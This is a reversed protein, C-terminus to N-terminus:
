RLGRILGRQPAGAVLAVRVEQRLILRSPCAAEPGQKVAFQKTSGGWGRSLSFRGTRSRSAWSAAARAFGALHLLGLGWKPHFAACIRAIASVVVLVFVAQVAAPTVLPGGTHGLSARSMVALTMTGLAGGTWAHIGAAAPVVHLSALGVLVFGLPVFAYAIHLILVLWDRWARDGAWRGLRVAQLIGSALLLGGTASRDPAVVWALLTAAACSMSAIDYRDFPAPMRGTNERTLWNRTFSPVIRGGILMLLMITASIGLRVGYDAFGQIHAEVHFVANGVLFLVVPVLVKM